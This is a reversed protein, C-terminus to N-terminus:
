FLGKYTIYLCNVFTLLNTLAHSIRFIVNWETMSFLHSWHSLIKLGILENWLDCLVIEHRKIIASIIFFILSDHIREDKRIFLIGMICLRWYQCINEKKFDEEPTNEKYFKM